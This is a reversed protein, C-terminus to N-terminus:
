RIRAVKKKLDTMRLACLDVTSLLKEFDIRVDSKGSTPESFIVGRTDAKIVLNANRIPIEKKSAESLGIQVLQIFTAEM